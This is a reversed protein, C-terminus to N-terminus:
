NQHWILLTLRRDPTVIFGSAVFQHAYVQKDQIQEYVKEWEAQLSEIEKKTVDYIKLANAYQESGYAHEGM